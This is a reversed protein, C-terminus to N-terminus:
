DEFLWIEFALWGILFCVCILIFVCALLIRAEEDFVLSEDFLFCFCVIVVLDFLFLVFNFFLYGFISYTLFILDHM